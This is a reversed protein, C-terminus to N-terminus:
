QMMSDGARLKQGNDPAGMGGAADADKQNHPRPTNVLLKVRRKHPKTAEHDVLAQANQFYRSCPVCYHKGYGPTDEDLEVNATTGKPGSKGPVHVANAPKRVDEWVQDIHRAEFKGRSLQKHPKKGQKRSSGVKRSPGGGM